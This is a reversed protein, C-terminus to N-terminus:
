LQLSLKPPIRGMEADAVLNSCKFPCSGSVQIATM